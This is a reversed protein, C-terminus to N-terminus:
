LGNPPEYTDGLNSFNDKRNNCNDYICIDNGRGFVILQSKDHSVAFNKFRHQRHVSKKTLSFVFASSDTQYKCDYSMWALSTYGGFVKGADSEVLTITPGKEDCLCHFAKASFGDRSGRM